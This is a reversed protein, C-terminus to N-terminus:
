ATPPPTHTGTNRQRLQAIDRVLKKLDSEITDLTKDKDVEEIDEQIEDIDEQIEDVDKQIEDIDEEVEELSEAHRNVTLQIFISLYIAELSVATTLILLVKDVPIQFLILLFAGAFLATHVYLSRISGIWRVAQEVRNKKVQKSHLKSVM